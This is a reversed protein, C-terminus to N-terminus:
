AHFLIVPLFHLFEETEVSIEVELESFSILTWQRWVSSIPVLHIIYLGRSLLIKCSNNLFLGNLVLGAPVLIMVYVHMCVANEYRSTQLVYGSKFARFYNRRPIPKKPEHSGGSKCLVRWFSCTCKWWHSPPSSSNNTADNIILYKMGMYAFTWSKEPVFSGLSPLSFLLSVTGYINLTIRYPYSHYCECVQVFCEPPSGVGGHVSINDDM